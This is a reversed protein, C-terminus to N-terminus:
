RGEGGPLRLVAGQSPVSVEAPSRLRLSQKVVDSRRTVLVTGGRVAAEQGADFYFEHAAAGYRANYRRVIRKPSVAGATVNIKLPVLASADDAVRHVIRLRLDGGTTKLDARLEPGDGGEKGRRSELLEALPITRSPPLPRQLIWVQIAAKPAGSPWNVARLRLVPNPTGAAFGRDFFPYAAGASKGDATQPAIEVWYQAPRPTFAAHDRRLSLAFTVDRGGAGSRSPVHVGLRLGSESEGAPALLAAFRPDGTRWYDSVIKGEGSYLLQLAEGGELKVEQVASGASVVATGDALLRMDVKVPEGLESTDLTRRASDAVRFRDGGFVQKLSSLLTEAKVASLYDGGSAKQIAQFDARARQTEAASMEFGLLHVPVRQRSLEATLQNVGILKARQTETLAIERPVQQNNVGDTIVVIRKGAGAPEGAFQQLATQLALYLPTEGWPEISELLREVRSATSEDFRGLPLVTEVDELPLLGEPIKRAYGKRRLIEKGNEANWGVRHGYFVVGVRANGRRALQNLLKTLAEKAVSMRTLGAPQSGHADAGKTATNMSQSCDLVFVISMPKGPDGSLTIQAERSDQPRYEVVIGGATQPLFETSFEHGRFLTVASLPGGAEMMEGTMLPVTFRRVAGPRKSRVLPVARLSGAVRGRRGRIYFAGLGPPLPAAHSAPRGLAVREVEARVMLPEDPALHLSSEAGTRVGRRAAEKRLAILAAIRRSEEADGAPFVTNAADVYDRAATAFFSPDGPKAGAWFDEASRQAHWLLLRHLEYQLLYLVPDPRTQPLGFAVGAREVRASRGWIRRFDEARSAPVSEAAKVDEPFGDLRLRLEREAHLLREVADAEPSLPALSRSLRASRPSQRTPAVGSGSKRKGGKGNGGGAPEDQLQAPDAESPDRLMAPAPHQEWRVLFRRVADRVKQLRSEEAESLRGDDGGAPTERFSRAIREALKRKRQRLRNRLDTAGARYESRQRGPVLPVSLVSELRRLVTADAKGNDAQLDNCEGDYLRALADFAEKVLDRRSEFPERNRLAAGLVQADAILQTVRRAIADDQLEPKMLTGPRALWDATWPLEAWVRDELLLSQQVRAATQRAEDYERQAQRITQIPPAPSQEPGVFLVDEVTRRKEDAADVQSQVWRLARVDGPVAARGAAVRLAVTQAPVRGDLWLDPADFRRLLQLFHVDDVDRGTTQQSPPAEVLPRLAAAIEEGTASQKLSDLAIRVAEADPRAIRGMAQALTLSHMKAQAPSTGGTSRVFGYHASEGDPPLLAAIRGALRGLEAKLTRAQGAYAAGAAAAAELRLLKRQFEAWLRPDVSYPEGNRLRDHERWLADIEEDSVVPKFAAAGLPYGPREGRLAWAVHFDADAESAILMPQQREARHHRAWEDVHHRVYGYLERLSVSRDGNGGEEPRDAEGAIGRQLYHGFVTGQLRASAWGRQGPSVSNLVVLHPIGSKEILKSQVLRDTFANYLVAQSWRVRLRNCDLVLLTNAGQPVVRSNKIWKLVDRLPVWTAANQASAGPPVLCAEGDDNVGGHMSLVIVVTRARPQSKILADLRSGLNQLSTTRDVTLSREHLAALRDADESAWANPAFPESYPAASVILVPTQVPSILLSWVYWGVLAGAVILLGAIIFGRRRGAGPMRESAREVDTTQWRHKVDAREDSAQGRWGASGQEAAARTAM